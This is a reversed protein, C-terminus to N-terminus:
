VVITVETGEKVVVEVLKLGKYNKIDEIGKLIANFDIAEIYRRANQDVHKLAQRKAFDLLGLRLIFLPLPVPICYRRHNKMKLYVRM